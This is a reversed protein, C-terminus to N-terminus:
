RASPGTRFRRTGSSLSTTQEGNAATFAGTVSYGTRNGDPFVLADVTFPGVCTANGTGSYMLANTAPDVGMFTYEATGLFPLAQGAGATAPFAGLMAAVTVLVVSFVVFPKM